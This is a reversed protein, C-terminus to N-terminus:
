GTKRERRLHDLLRAMWPDDMALWEVSAVPWSWGGVDRQVASGDLDAVVHLALRCGTARYRLVGDDIDCMRRLDDVDDLFAALHRDTDWLTAMSRLSNEFLRRWGADDLAVQVDLTSLPVAAGLLRLAFPGTAQWELGDLLRHLSDAAFGVDILWESRPRKRQREIAALVDADLPELEIRPQLGYAALVRRFVSWTPTAAGTEYRSLQQRSLGCADAVRQQPWLLKSRQKRLLRGLEDM